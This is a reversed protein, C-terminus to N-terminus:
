FINKPFIITIHDRKILSIESNELIEPNERQGSVTVSCSRRGSQMFVKLATVTSCRVLLSGRLGRSKSRGSCGNAWPLARLWKATYPVVLQSVNWSRSVPFLFYISIRLIQQSRQHGYVKVILNLPGVPWCPAFLHSSPFIPLRHVTLDGSSM